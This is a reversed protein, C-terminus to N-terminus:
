PDFLGRINSERLDAFVSSPPLEWEADDIINNIRVGDYRGARALAVLEDTNIVDRNWGAKRLAAQAREPLSSVRVVQGGGADATLFNATRMMAPVVNAGDGYAYSGAVHPSDSWWQVSGTRSNFPGRLGRFVPVEFEPARAMAAKMARSLLAM